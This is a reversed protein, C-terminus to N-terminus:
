SVKQLGSIGAMGAWTDQGFVFQARTKPTGSPARPLFIWHGKQLCINTTVGTEGAVGAAEVAVAGFGTDASFCGTAALGLGTATLGPLAELALLGAESGLGAGDFGPLKRGKSKAEPM